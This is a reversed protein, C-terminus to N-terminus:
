KSTKILMVTVEDQATHFKVPSPIAKRPSRKEVEPALFDAPGQPSFLKQGGSRRAPRSSAAAFYSQKLPSATKRPSRRLPTTSIKSVKRYVIQGAKVEVDVRTEKSVRFNGTKPTNSTTRTVPNTLGATQIVPSMAFSSPSKLTPECNILSRPQPPIEISVVPLESIKVPELRLRKKPRRIAHSV